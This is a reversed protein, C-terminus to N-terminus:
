ANTLSGTSQLTGDMIFSDTDHAPQVLVVQNLSGVDARLTGSATFAETDHTTHQLRRFVEELAGTSLLAGDLVFRDGDYPLNLIIVPERLSGGLPVGGVTMTEEADAVFLATRLSGATSLTASATFSERLLYPYLTSEVSQLSWKGMAADRLSCVARVRGDRLKAVDELFLGAAGALPTAYEVAYRDRQQRLALVGGPETVYFLLLDSDQPDEPADLLVRPTRGAGVREFVYRRQDPLPNFWYLWVEPTGGAGTARQACVVVNANQDFGVDVEEVPAGTTSFLTTEAEWATGAASARALHVTGGSVRARWARASAGAAADGLARPGQAFATLGDWSVADPRRDLSLGPDTAHRPSALEGRTELVSM